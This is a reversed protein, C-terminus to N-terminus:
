ASIDRLFGLFEEKDMYGVRWNLIEEQETLVVFTPTGMVVYKAMLESNEEQDVDLLVPIFNEKIVRSVEPDPLVEMDMKRCFGCWSAWFYLLVPKKEREAIRLGEEYSTVWAIDAITKIGPNQTEVGPNDAVVGPSQEEVMQGQTGLCGALLTLVGALILSFLRNWTM